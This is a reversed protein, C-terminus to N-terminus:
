SPLERWARLLTTAEECRTEGRRCDGCGSSHEFFARWAKRKAAPTATSATRQLRGFRSGDDRWQRGVGNM